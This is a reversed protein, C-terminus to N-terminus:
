IVMSQYKKPRGRGRKIVKDILVIDSQNIELIEDCINTFPSSQIINSMLHPKIKKLIQEKLIAKQKQKQEKLIAKNIKKNHKTKEKEFKLNKIKLKKIKINDKKIVDSEDIEETSDCDFHNYEVIPKILSTKLMEDTKNLRNILIDTESMEDNNNINDDNNADFVTNTINTIKNVSEMNIFNCILNTLEDYLIIYKYPLLKKYTISITVDSIGFATGIIKKNINKNNNITIAMLISAAAISTAQHNSAIDLKTANNSITQALQITNNPLEIKSGFRNIFDSGCSPKIDFIIFNDKMIELFKRCGKTIQKYTMDFIDAVEKTSRPQHQLIAAFHFCAAVIQKCNFGRIIVNKGESPGFDHKKQKLNKYLIKAGDIIAKTIRYKKCKTEIDNFVKALTNEKYVAQGWNKLM